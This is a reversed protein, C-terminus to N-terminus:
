SPHARPSAIRRAGRSIHRNEVTVSCRGSRRCWREIPDRMGIDGDHPTPDGTQGCRKMGRLGAGLYHQELRLIGTETGGPSVATLDVRAELEVRIRDLAVEARIKASPHVGECARCRREHEIEDTPM